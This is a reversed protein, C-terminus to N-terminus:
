SAHPVNGSRGGRRGPPWGSGTGNPGADGGRSPRGNPSWGREADEEKAVPEAPAAEGRIRGGAVAPREAPPTPRPPAPRELPPLTAAPRETPPRVPRPAEPSRPAVPAPREAPARRAAPAPAHPAAPVAGSGVPGAVPRGTAPRGVQRGVARGPAVRPALRERDPEVAVGPKGRGRERSRLPKSEPVVALVALGLRDKMDTPFRVTHDLTAAVVVAAITLLVGMAAFVAFGTVASRLGNEPVVPIQPADVVTIRRTVTAKAQETQIRADEMKSIVDGQRSEAADLVSQLRNIEIQEEDPREAGFGPAPHDLLYAALDERATAVDADYTTLQQELFNVAVEFDQTNADIVSQVFADITSQALLQAVQPHEFYVYIKLLNSGSDVASISSRVEDYTIVGSKVLEAIRAREAINEVFVQTQLRSNIQKATAAAPTDYGFQPDAGGLKELISSNQVEVTAVSKYVSKKTVMTLGGLACLLVLPVLYLWWRRFFTELLRIVSYRSM